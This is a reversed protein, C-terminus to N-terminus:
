AKKKRTATGPMVYAGDAFDFSVKLTEGDPTLTLVTSVPSGQYDFFYRVVVDAGYKTVTAPLKEGMNASTVEGVVKDDQVKLTLLVTTAGQSGSADITWDGLLATADAPQLPTEVVPDQVAVPAAAADLRTTTVAVFLTSASLCLVLSFRCRM